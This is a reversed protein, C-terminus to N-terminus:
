VMKEEVEGIRAEVTGYNGCHYEIFNLAKPVRCRYSAVVRRLKRLRLRHSVRRTSPGDTAAVTPAVAELMADAFDKLSLGFCGRVDLARLNPFLRVITELGAKCIGCQRAMNLVRLAPFTAAAARDFVGTPAFTITTAFHSRASVNLETLCPLASVVTRVFVDGSGDHGEPLLVELRRLHRFSTLAKLVPSPADMRSMLTLTRLNPTSIVMSALVLASAVLSVNTVQPLPPATSGLDPMIVREVTWPLPGRIGSLKPFLGGAVASSIDMLHFFGGGFELQVLNPALRALRRSRINQLVDITSSYVTLRVLRSLPVIADEAPHLPDSADSENDDVPLSLVELHPCGGRYLANVTDPHLRHGSRVMVSWVVLNPAWAAACRDVTDGAVTVSGQVVVERVTGPHHTAAACLIQDVPAGAPIHIKCLSGAAAVGDTGHPWWQLLRVALAADDHGTAMWDNAPASFLAQCLPAATHTTCGAALFLAATSSRCRRCDAHAGRAEVAPRSAHATLWVVADAVPATM